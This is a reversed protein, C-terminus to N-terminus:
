RPVRPNLTLEIDRDKRILYTFKSSSIKILPSSQLMHSNFIFNLPNLVKNFLISYALFLSCIGCTHSYCLSDVSEFVRGPVRSRSGAMDGM